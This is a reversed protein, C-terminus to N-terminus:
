LPSEAALRTEFVESEQWLRLVEKGSEGWSEGPSEWRSESKDISSPITTQDTISSIKDRKWEIQLVFDSWIKM